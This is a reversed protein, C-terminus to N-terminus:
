NYSTGQDTVTKELSEIFDYMQQQTPDIKPTANRPNIEFDLQPFSSHQLSHEPPTIAPSQEPTEGGLDIFHAGKNQM